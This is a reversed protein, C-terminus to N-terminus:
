AKSASKQPRADIIYLDPVREGRKEAETRLGQVSKISMESDTTQLILYIGHTTAESRQYIPLQTEFGHILQRNSSLKIEVVMRGEYGSSLKFDVPGNGANPEANLDINNAKCYTDATAFFLRQSFREHRPKGDVYLVEWLKNDEINKKFQRIIAAVIEKLQGINRPTGLELKLPFRKAIDEAIEEWDFLGMPDRVFDYGVPASERYVRILDTLNQPRQMLMERIEGKTPSRKALAAAAFIAGWDKRVRENFTAVEEIESRDLAVPLDNLLETPILILPTKGDPHLPLNWKAAGVDMRSVPKAGLERAIRETYALFRTRLIAVAMDSLRDAGFDEEFLPILEFIVPDDVGLLIIESARSCLREALEGGIGSGHGGIGSYGLAAGHEEGFALRKCAENWAADGRNQSAKLLRIVNRFYEELEERADKFEETSAAKLLNPDVFLSNDLGILANFVGRKRLELAPVNFYRSLKTAV